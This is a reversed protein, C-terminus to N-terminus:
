RASSAPPTTSRSASGSLSPRRTRSVTSRCSSKASLWGSEGSASAVMSSSSGFEGAGAGASAEGSTGGAAAADQTTM